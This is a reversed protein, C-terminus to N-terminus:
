KLDVVEWITEPTKILHIQIEKYKKEGKVTLNFIAEGSEQGNSNMVQVSGTPILGFGKVNGVENLIESNTSLYITAAEYADSTKIFFIALPSVVLGIMFFGIAIKTWLTKKGNEKRKRLIVFLYTILAILLALWGLVDSDWFFYINLKRCLYSYMLLIIGIILSTRSIKAM